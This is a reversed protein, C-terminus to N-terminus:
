ETRAAGIEGALLLVPELLETRVGKWRVLPEPPHPFAECCTRLSAVRVARGIDNGIARPASSRLASIPICTYAFGDILSNKSPAGALIKWTAFCRGTRYVM